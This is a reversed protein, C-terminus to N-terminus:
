IPQRKRRIADAITCAEKIVAVIVRCDDEDFTLPVRLDCLGCLVNRTGALNVQNEIYRWSDYRSTFARPVPDGFWKIDVGRVTCENIFTKVDDELWDALSFQISSGVFEEHQPRKPLTLSHIKDFGKNLSATYSIGAAVIKTWNECNFAFYLHGCIIWEAAIIRRIWATSKFYTKM